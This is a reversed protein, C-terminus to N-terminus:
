CVNQFKVKESEIKRQIWESMLIGKPLKYVIVAQTSEHYSLIFRVSDSREGLENFASYITSCPRVTNSIKIKTIMPGFIFYKKRNKGVKTTIIKGEGNIFYISEYIYIIEFIGIDVGDYVKAPPYNLLLPEIKSVYVNAIPKKIIEGVWPFEQLFAKIKTPPMRSDWSGKKIIKEQTLM